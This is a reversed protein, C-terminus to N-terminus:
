IRKIKKQKKDIKSNRVIEVKYRETVAFNRSKSKKKPSEDKNKALCDSPNQNSSDDDFIILQQAPVESFSKRLSSEFDKDLREDNDLINRIESIAEDVTIAGKYVRDYVKGMKGLAESRHVIKPRENVDKFIKSAQKTVYASALSVDSHLTKIGSSIDDYTAIFVVVAIATAKIKNKAKLSGSELELVLAYDDLGLIDEVYASWEDFLQDAYAELEDKSFNPSSLYFTSSGIDIM